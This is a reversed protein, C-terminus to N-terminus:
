LNERWETIKFGSIYLVQQETLPGNQFINDKRQFFRDDFKISIENGNLALNSVQLSGLMQIEKDDGMVTFGEGSATMSAQIKLMEPTNEGIIIEGGKEKGDLFDKGAAHIILQADSDKIYPVGEKWTVGQYILHSNLTIEDSSIFTLSVGRKVCPIEEQAAMLINGAADEFGGGMSLIKGNVIIIGLPIYDFSQIGGPSDFVTKSEEPSFKLIWLNERQRFMIIQFNGQIALVLEDLDGQVFVGGLGLDDQILYVGEPVPEDNVELGLVLRLRAASLDQPHFIKIKLAKALQPLAQRPLLGGESFAVPAPLEVEGSPLMKIRNEALFIRRQEATMFKDLLLAIASLPIHGALIGLESDLISAKTPNFGQLKGTASIRARYEVLFYEPEERLRVLQFDSLSEWALREWSDSLFLPLGCGLVRQVVANGQIRSDALFQSTESETILIPSSALSVLDHLHGYGQKIGNESAYELLLTNKKYASIKLYAQTLYLMGLGLTSFVIFLFVTLLTLTGKRKKENKGRFRYWRPIRRFCPQRM